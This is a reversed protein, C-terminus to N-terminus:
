SHAICHHTHLAIIPTTASGNNSVTISLREKVVNMSVIITTNPFCYKVANSCYNRVTTSIVNHDSFIIEPVNSPALEITCHKTKTNLSFVQVISGLMERLNVPTIQVIATKGAEAKQLSLTANLTNSMSEVCSSMSQLLELREPENGKEMEGHLLLETGLSLGNLPVRVEHFIFRLFSNVKQKDSRAARLLEALVNKVGLLTFVLHRQVLSQLMKSVVDCITEQHYHHYHHHHHHHYHHHTFSLSFFLSWSSTSHTAQSDRWTSSTSSWSPLGFFSLPRLSISCCGIYFFGNAPRGRVNNIWRPTQWPSKKRQPWRLVPLM